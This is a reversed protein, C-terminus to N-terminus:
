LDLYRRTDAIIVRGPGWHPTRYDPLVDRVIFNDWIEAIGWTRIQEFLREIIDTYALHNRYCHKKIYAEEVINGDKYIPQGDEAFYDYVGLDYQFVLETHTHAGDSLGIDSAVIPLKDGQSYRHNHIAARSRDHRITHAIQLECNVNEGPVIRACSGWATGPKHNWSLKGDFPMVIHDPRGARDTGPHFPSGIYGQKRFCFRDGSYSAGPRYPYDTRIFDIM